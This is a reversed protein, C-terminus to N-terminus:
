AAETQLCAEGQSAMLAKKHIPNGDPGTVYMSRMETMRDESFVADVLVEGSEGSLLAQDLEDEITEDLETAEKEECQEILLKYTAPDCQDDVEAAEKLEEPPDPDVPEDGNEGVSVSSSDVSPQLSHNSDVDSLQLSREM